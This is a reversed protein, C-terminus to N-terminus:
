IQEVDWGDYLEVNSFVALKNMAINRNHLSEPTHIEIKSIQLVWYNTDNKHLSELIYNRDKIEEFLEMLKEKNKDFFFYSWKLNKSIDWGDNTM